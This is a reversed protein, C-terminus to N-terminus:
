PHNPYPKPTKTKGSATQINSDVRIQALIRCRLEIQLTWPDHRAARASGLTRFRSRSLSLCPPQTPISGRGGPQPSALDTVTMLMMMVVMMMMVMAMAMAMAMAMRRRMM